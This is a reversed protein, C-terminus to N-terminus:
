FASYPETMDAEPELFFFFRPKVIFQSYHIGIVKVDLSVIVADHSNKIAKCIHILNFSM